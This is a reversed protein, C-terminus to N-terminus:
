ELWRTSFDAQQSLGNDLAPEVRVDGQNELSGIFLEETRRDAIIYSKARYILTQRSHFNVLADLFCQRSNTCLVENGARHMMKRFSFFAHDGNGPGQCQSGPDDKKIFGASTEIDATSSAEHRQEMLRCRCSQDCGVVQFEDQFGAGAYEDQISPLDNGVSGGPIDHAVFDQHGGVTLFFRMGKDRMLNGVSMRLSDGFFVFEVEEKQKKEM